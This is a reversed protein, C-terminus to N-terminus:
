GEYEQRPAFTQVKFEAVGCYLDNLLEQASEISLLTNDLLCDVLGQEYITGDEWRIYPNGDDNLRVIFYTEHEMTKPEKIWGCKGVTHVTGNSMTVRPSSFKEINLIDGCHCNM